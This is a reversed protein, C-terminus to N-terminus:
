EQIAKAIAAAQEAKLQRDEEESRWEEISTLRGNHLTTQELIKDTTQDQASLHNKVEWIHDKVEWLHVLIEGQVDTADQPNIEIRGTNRLMKLKERAESM